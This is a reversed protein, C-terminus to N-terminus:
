RMPLEFHRWFLELPRVQVVLDDSATQTGATRSADDRARMVDKAIVVLVADVSGEMEVVLKTRGVARVAL